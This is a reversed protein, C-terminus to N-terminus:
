IGPSSGGPTHSTPPPLAKQEPGRGLWRAPHEAPLTLPFLPSLLSPAPLGAQSSLWASAQLFDFLFMKVFRPFDKFLHFVPGGTSGEM